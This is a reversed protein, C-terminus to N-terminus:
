STKAPFLTTAERLAHDTRDSLDTLDTSDSLDTPHLALAPLVCIKVFKVAVALLAKRVVPYVEM